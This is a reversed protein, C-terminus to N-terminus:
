MRPIGRKPKRKKKRKTKKTPTKENGSDTKHVNQTASTRSVEGGGLSDNEGSKMQDEEEEDDGQFYEHLMKDIESDRGQRYGAMFERICETAIKMAESALVKLDDQTRIGTTEKAQELLDQADKRVIKLNNTANDGIERLQDQASISSEVVGTSQNTTQQEKPRSTPIGTIGDEWTEKYLAWGKQIQESTPIRKRFDWLSRKPSDPLGHPRPWLVRWPKGKPYPASEDQDPTSKPIPEDNTVPESTDKNSIIKDNEHDTSVLSGSSHSNGRWARPRKRTRGASLFRRTTTYHSLDLCSEVALNRPLWRSVSAKSPVPRSSLLGLSRKNNLIMSPSARRRCRRTSYRATASAVTSVTTAM